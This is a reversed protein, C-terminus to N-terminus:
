FKLVDIIKGIIQEFTTFKLNKHHKLYLDNLLFCIENKQYGLKLFKRTISKIINSTITHMM